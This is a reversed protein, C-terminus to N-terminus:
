LHYDGASEPQYHIKEIKLRRTGAPADFKITQGLRVGLLATGLPALVSLRGNDIDAEEPYVLTYTDSEDFRLDRVSVTSRMTVVQPPVQGAPVVLCRDLEQRLVALLSAHTERYRPSEVLAKLRDFDSETIVIQRNSVTQKTLM